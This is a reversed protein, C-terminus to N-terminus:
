FVTLHMLCYHHRYSKFYMHNFQIVVIAYFEPSVDKPHLLFVEELNDDKDRNGTYTLATGYLFFAKQAEAM